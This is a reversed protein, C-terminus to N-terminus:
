PCDFERHLVVVTQHAVGLARDGLHAKVYVPVKFTTPGSCIRGQSDAAAIEDVWPALEAELIARPFRALADRRCERLCTAPAVAERAGFQRGPFEALRHPLVSQSARMPTLARVECSCDVLAHAPTGLALFSLLFLIM